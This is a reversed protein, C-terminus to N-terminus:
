NPVTTAYIIYPYGRFENAFPIVTFMYKRSPKNTLNNIQVTRSTVNNLFITEDNDKYTISVFCFTNGQINLKLSNNTIDSIFVRVKIVTTLQFKNITAMDSTYVNVVPQSYKKVVKANLLQSVRLKRTISIDNTSTSKKKFREDNECVVDKIFKNPNAPDCKMISTVFRANYNRRNM